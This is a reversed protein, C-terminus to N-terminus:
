FLTQTQFIYEIWYTCLYANFENIWFGLHYVSSARSSSLSRLSGKHAGLMTLFFPFFGEEPRSYREIFPLKHHLNAMIETLIQGAATSRAAGCHETTAARQWHWEASSYTTQQASPLICPTRVWSSANKWLYGLSKPWNALYIKPCKRPSVILGIKADM